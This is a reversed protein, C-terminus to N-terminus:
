RKINVFYGIQCRIWRSLDYKTQPVSFNPKTFLFWVLSMNAKKVAVFGYFTDTTNTSCILLFMNNWAEISRHQEELKIVILIKNVYSDPNQVTEMM